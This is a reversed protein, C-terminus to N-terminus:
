KTRIKKLMLLLAGLMIASEIIMKWTLILEMELLLDGGNLKHNVTTSQPNVTQSSVTQIQFRHKESVVM